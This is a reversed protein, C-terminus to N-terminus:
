NMIKVKQKLKEDENFLKNEYEDLADERSSLQYMIDSFELMIDNAELYRDMDYYFEMVFEQKLSELQIKADNLM